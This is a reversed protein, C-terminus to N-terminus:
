HYSNTEILHCFLELHFCAFSRQLLVALKALLCSVIRLSLVFQTVLNKVLPAEKACQRKSLLKNEIKAIQMGQRLLVTTSKVQYHIIM